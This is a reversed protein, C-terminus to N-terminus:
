HVNKKMLVAYSCPGPLGILFVRSNAFGQVQHSLKGNKRNEKVFLLLNVSFDTCDVMDNSRVIMRQNEYGEHFKSRRALYM